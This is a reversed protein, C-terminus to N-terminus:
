RDTTANLITVFEEDFDILKVLKTYEDQQSLYTYITENTEVVAHSHLADLTGVLADPGAQGIVVQNNAPVAIAYGALLFVGLYSRM